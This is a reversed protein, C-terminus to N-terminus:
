SIANIVKKTIDEVIMPEGDDLSLFHHEHSTNDTVIKCIVVNSGTWLTNENQVMMKYGELTYHIHDETELKKMLSIVSGTLNKTSEEVSKIYKKVKDKIEKETETVKIIM